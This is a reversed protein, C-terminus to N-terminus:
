SVDGGSQGAAVRVEEFVDGAGGCLDSLQQRGTLYQLPLTPHTRTNDSGKSVEAIWSGSFSFPM